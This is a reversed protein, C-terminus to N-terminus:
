RPITVTRSNVVQGQLVEGSSLNKVRVIEGIKGSELAQGQAEVRVRGNEYVLTVLHGPHIVQPMQVM